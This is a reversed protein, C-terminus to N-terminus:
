RFMHRYRDWPVSSGVLWSRHLGRRLPFMCCSTQLWCCRLRDAMYQQCTSSRFLDLGVSHHSHNPNTSHQLIWREEATLFGTDPLAYTDWPFDRVFEKGTRNSDAEQQVLPKYLTDLQYTKFTNYTKFYRHFQHFQLTM